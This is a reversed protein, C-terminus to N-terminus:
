LITGCIDCVATNIPQECGCNRCRKAPVRNEASYIVSVNRDADDQNKTKARIILSGSDESDSDSPTDTREKLKMWIGLAITIMGALAIIFLGFAVSDDM